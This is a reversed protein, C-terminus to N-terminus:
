RDHSVDIRNPKQETMQYESTKCEKIIRDGKDPLALNLKVNKVTWGM